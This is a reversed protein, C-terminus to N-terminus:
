VALTQVEHYRNGEHNVVCDCDMWITLLQKRANICAYVDEGVTMVRNGYPILDHWFWPYTMKELAKRTFMLFGGGAWDIEILGRQSSAVYNTVRGEESCYGAVFREPKDKPRYAGSIVDKEHRLLQLINEKTFGVDHDVFLWHSIKPDLTQKIRQDEKNDNILINRGESIISSRAIKAEYTFETCNGKLTEVCSKALSADWTALDYVPVCIKVHLM